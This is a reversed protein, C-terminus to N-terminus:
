FLTKWIKSLILWWMSEPPLDEKYKWTGQGCAEKNARWARSSEDFNINVPYIDVNDAVPHGQTDTTGTRLHRTQSRTLVMQHTAAM